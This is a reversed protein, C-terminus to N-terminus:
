HQYNENIFNLLYIYAKKLQGSLERYNSLWYIVFMFFSKMAIKFNCRNWWDYSPASFFRDRHKQPKPTTSHLWLVKAYIRTPPQWLCVRWSLFAMFKYVLFFITMWWFQMLFEMCQSHHTNNRQLKEGMLHFYNSNPKLPFRSRPVLCFRM